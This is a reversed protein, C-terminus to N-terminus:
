QVTGKEPMIAAAIGEVAMRAGEMEPHTYRMAMESSNHGMFKQRSAVSMGHQDAFTASSHRFSHWCIWPLGLRKGVPKLIKAATTHSGIPNGHTTIFVPDEADANSERGRLVALQDLVRLPVPITRVGKKSKPTPVWRGKSFQEQVTLTGAAFDIRKWRLGAAEGIRLGTTFLLAGLISYQGPLATIVRRADEASLAVREAHELKPLSVGETPLDGTIMRCNKAHRFVASIVNRFHVFTQTSYEHNVERREKGKRIITKYGARKERFFDQIVMTSIDRMKMSGFYPLIHNSLMGKYHEQGSKKLGWLHDPEFRQRVFDGFTVLSGPTMSVTDLKSLVEDWALREAQRRSIKGPGESEAIKRSRQDRTPRGTIDRGDERWRLIWAGSKEYLYGKRQARRRSM